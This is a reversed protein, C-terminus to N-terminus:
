RHEEVVPLQQVPQPALLGVVHAAWRELAARKEALYEYRDYVGTVERDAHALVRAVVFRAVGLRAMGTAASRRLDHFTWPALPTGAIELTQRDIQEKIRDFATLLRAGLVCPEDRPCHALLDLVAPALPLMHTRRGKMREAPLTIVNQSLDTEDWRLM